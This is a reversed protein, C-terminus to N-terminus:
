IIYSITIIHYSSIAVQLIVYTYIYLCIGGNCINNQKMPSVYVLSMHIQKKTRPEPGTKSVGRTALPWDVRSNIPILLAM